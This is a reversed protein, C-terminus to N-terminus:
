VEAPTPDRHYGGQRGVDKAADTDQAIHHTDPGAKNAM